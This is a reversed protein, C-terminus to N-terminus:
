KNTGAPYPVTWNLSMPDTGIITQNGPTQPAYAHFMFPPKITDNLTGGQPDGAFMYVTECQNITSGTLKPTLPTLRVVSPLVISLFCVTTFGWIFTLPQQTQAASGIVFGLLVSLGLPLM